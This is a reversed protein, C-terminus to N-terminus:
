GVCIGKCGVRVGMVFWIWVVGESDTRENEATEGSSRRETETVKGNMRRQHDARCGSNTRKHLPPVVSTSRLIIPPLDYSPRFVLLLRIYFLCLIKPTISYCFAYQFLHVAKWLAYSM